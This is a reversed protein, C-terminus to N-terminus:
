RQHSLNPPTVSFGCKESSELVVGSFSGTSLGPETTWRSALTCKLGLMEM